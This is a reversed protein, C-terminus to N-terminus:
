DNLNNSKNRRMSKRMNNTRLNVPATLQVECREGSNAIQGVAADALAKTGVDSNALHRQTLVECLARLLLPCQQSPMRAFINESHLYASTNQQTTANATASKTAGRLHGGRLRFHRRVRRLNNLLVAVNVKDIQIDATRDIRNTLTTSARRQSIPRSAEFRNNSRHVNNQRPANIEATLKNQKQNKQKRNVQHM